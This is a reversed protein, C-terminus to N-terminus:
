KRRYARSEADKAIDKPLVTLQLERGQADRIPVYPGRPFPHALYGADELQDLTGRVDRGIAGKMHTAGPPCGWKLTQEIVANLVESQIRTLTQKTM